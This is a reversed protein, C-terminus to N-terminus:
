VFFDDQYSLIYKYYFAFYASDELQFSLTGAFWKILPINVFRASCGEKIKPGLKGIVEHRLFFLLKVRLLIRESFHYVDSLLYGSHYFDIFFIIHKSFIKLVLLM